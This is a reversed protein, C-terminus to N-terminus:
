KTLRRYQNDHAPPGVEDDHDVDFDMYTDLPIDAKDVYSRYDYDIPIPVYADREAKQQQLRWINNAMTVMADMLVAENLDGTAAVNTTSKPPWAPM